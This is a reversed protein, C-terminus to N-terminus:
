CIIEPTFMKRPLASRIHRLWGCVSAKATSGCKRGRGTCKGSVGDSESVARYLRNERADYQFVVNETEIPLSVVTEVTEGVAENFFLFLDGMPQRYHYYRLDPYSEQLTIERLGIGELFVASELFGESERCGELDETVLLKEHYYSEQTSQYKPAQEDMVITLGQALAEDCWELIRDPLYECRPFILVHYQEQGVTLSSDVIDAGLLAEEPLVEYDIQHRM